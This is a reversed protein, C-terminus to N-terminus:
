VRVKELDGRLDKKQISGSGLQAGQTWCHGWGTYEEEHWPGGGSMVAPKSITPRHPLCCMTRNVVLDWAGLAAGRMCYSSVLCHNNFPHRRM